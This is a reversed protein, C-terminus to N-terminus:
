PLVASAMSLYAGDEKQTIMFAGVPRVTYTYGSDTRPDGTIYLSGSYGGDSLEVTYDIRANAALYGSPKQTFANWYFSREGEELELVQTEAASGRSDLLRGDATYLVIRAPSPVDFTFLFSTDEHDLYPRCIWSAQGMADEPCLRYLDWAYLVGKMDHCRMIWLSEDMRLLSYQGNIKMFGKQRYVSIDPAHGSLFLAEWEEQTYPFDTWGEQPLSCATWTGASRNELIFEDQTLHYRYGSDVGSLTSSLPTMYLCADSVYVVEPAHIEVIGPMDYGGIAAISADDAGVREAGGVAAISVDMGDARALRFVWRFSSDDSASDYEGETDYYGYALYLDGNKQQLLLYMESFDETLRLARWATKNGRRLAAATVDGEERWGSVGDAKYFYRDFCDKTLEFEEVSGLATWEHEGTEAEGASIGSFLSGDELLIYQPATEPTYTFSYRPSDFVIEDVQYASGFPSATQYQVDPNAACAAVVAVCLALAAATLWLKPKKWRLANKVRIRVGSEGFALPGPVPFRRNSAFSLLATTYAKCASGQSDLVWEDCRMEMDRSMLIFALWCLPNFWHLCLLIFAFLKVLHDFHRIHYREHALVYGLTKEDLGYPLYIRPHLLGLVFPSCVTESQYVGTELRVAKRLRIHLLILSALSYVLLLGIGVCWIVGAIYVIIQMPNASYQPTAAPLSGYLLANASPIGVTIEPQAMMGIEEPVYTLAAGASAHQAATMDFPKLKFLSFVSQFSVPCCLRFGVVSWLAYAYKKPAKKLIFRVLVVALIVYSATLSMNLIKLFVTEM